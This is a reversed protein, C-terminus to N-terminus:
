LASGQYPSIFQLSRSPVCDLLRASLGATPIPLMFGGVATLRSLNM